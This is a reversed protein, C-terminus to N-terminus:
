FLSWCQEWYFFRNFRYLVEQQLFVRYFLLFLLLCLISKLLYEM